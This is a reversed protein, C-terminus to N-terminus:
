TANRMHAVARELAYIRDIMDRERKASAKLRDRLECLEEAHNDTIAKRAKNYAALTDRFEGLQTVIERLATTLHAADATAEKATRNVKDLRRNVNQEISVARMHAQGLEDEVRAMLDLEQESMLHTGKEYNARAMHQQLHALRKQKDSYSKPQKDNM